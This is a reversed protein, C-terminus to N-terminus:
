ARLKRGVFTLLLAGTFLLSISPEPIATYTFEMVLHSSVRGFDSNIAGSVGSSSGSDVLLLPFTNQFSFVDVTLGGKRPDYYFSSSLPISLSFPNVPGTGSEISFNLPGRPFVRQIDNGLNDRFDDTIIPTLSPATGMRIELEPITGTFENRYSEDMRLAIGSIIGGEPMSDLFEDARFTSQARVGAFFPGQSARGPSFTLE